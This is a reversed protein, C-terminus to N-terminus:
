KLISLEIVSKNKDHVEHEVVIPKDLSESVLAAVISALPSGLCEYLRLREYKMQPKSVEITVSEETMSVRVTNVLDLMGTLVSSLANEMEVPTSASASELMKVTASGPTIILLGLDEPNPGYKVILRQPLAKEIPPLSPSSHLPILAKPMGNTMSSPLYVAKSSLGIEEVMMAINELGTELFLASVEPSINPRTRGLVLCVAGLIVMSIGLATLPTSELLLHAVPALWIGTLFLGISLLIYPNKATM